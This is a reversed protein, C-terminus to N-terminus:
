TEEWGAGVAHGLTVAPATFAADFFLYSLLDGRVGPSARLLFGLANLDAHGKRLLSPLSGVQALAAEALEGLAADSAPVLLQFPISRYGRGVATSATAGNALLRNVRRLAAVDAILRDGTLAHLIQDVVDPIAPQGAGVPALPRTDVDTSVIVLGDAGLAIAPALPANLRVGGDVYWATSGDPHELEVPPFAAPIAASARVHESTLTAAVYSIGAGEDAPPLPVGPAAEVWVVTRGSAVHTTAVAVAEVTGDRVNRHLDDWVTGEALTALLPRSDLLSYAQIPLGFLGAVYRIGSATLSRAPSALVDGVSLSEWRATATAAADAAPQAAVSAFLVANLAGASTGVFLRPRRGEAELGPLVAALAGAEFAGRAGAGALM